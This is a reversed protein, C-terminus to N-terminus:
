KKQKNLEDQEAQIFTRPRIVVVWVKDKPAYDLRFVAAAGDAVEVTASRGFDEVVPSTLVLPKGGVETRSREEQRVRGAADM